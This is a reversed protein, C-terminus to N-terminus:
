IDNLFAEKRMEADLNNIDSKKKKKKVRLNYMRKFRNKYKKNGERKFLVM